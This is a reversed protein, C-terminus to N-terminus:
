RDTIVPSPAVAGQRKFFTKMCLVMYTLVRFVLFIAVNMGLCFWRSRHGWGFLAMYTDYFSYGSPFPVFLEGVGVQSKFYSIYQGQMNWRIPVVNPFWQLWLPLSYTKVFLGSFVFSLFAISTISVFSALVDESAYIGIECFALSAIQNVMWSLVFFYFFMPDTDLKVIKYVISVLVMMNFCALFYVPISTVLWSSWIPYLGRSHERLFVQNNNFLFYNYQVCMLIMVVSGVALFSLISGVSTTTNCDNMFVGFIVAVLVYNIISSIILEHRHLLALTARHLLVCTKYIVLKVGDWTPMRLGLLYKTCERFYLASQLVRSKRMVYQAYIYDQDNSEISVGTHANGAELQDVSQASGQPSPPVTNAALRTMSMPNQTAEKERDSPFRTKLRQYSDGAKYVVELELPDIISGTHDPLRSGAIAVLFDAPNPFTEPSYMQPGTIFFKMSTSVRGSYIVRGASLLLLSDFLNFIEASPQYISAVVTCDQNVMERLTALLKSAGFISVGTTPEDILLLKPGHVMEEAISLLKKQGATLSKTRVDAIADLHMNVITLKVNEEVVKLAKTGLVRLKMAFTLTERVTLDRLHCDHEPVLACRDWMPKSADPAVNNYYIKGSIQGPAGTNGALIHILSSKGSGASGMIMSLKGWDFQGSVNRLVHKTGMPSKADRVSYTVDRFLVTPGRDTNEQGTQSVNTSLRTIMGTVSASDRTFIVPQFSLLDSNRTDHRPMPSMTLRETLRENTIIIDVESNRDSDISSSSARMTLDTTLERRLQNPKKIISFFTMANFVIIFTQQIGFIQDKDFGGYGLLDIIHYGDPYASFKWVILAQYIWRVPTLKSLTILFPYMLPIQFPFGSFFVLIILAASYFERIANEKRLAACCLYIFSIGMVATLVMVQSWYTFAFSDWGSGSQMGVMFYFITSFVFGFFMIFPGESIATAAAFALVGCTGSAQEYRFMQVKKCSVHVTVVGMAFVFLTSFMLCAQTNTSDAYPVTLLSTAYEGIHCNGFQLYGLAMSVVIAAQVQKLLNETDKIKAHLARQIIIYTRYMKNSVLGHGRRYGCYSLNKESFATDKKSLSTAAQNADSKIRPQTFYKSTEFREQMFSPIEPTRQTNPREIGSSIDLLFQVIEEKKELVYGVTRDCFYPVISKRSAAFISIGGSLLIISDLLKFEQLVPKDMSCIVIHGRTALKGLCQFIQISLTPDLSLAPDDVVIVPPLHVIEIAIGLRRFDCGLPGRIVPNDAIKRDKCITLDMIDLIDVVRQEVFDDFGSSEGTYNKISLKAAYRIMEVYTLGPIYLSKGPVFGVNGYFDDEIVLGNGSLSIDGNVIGSKKRGTILDVFIRREDANGLFGYVRGGDASFNVNYLKARFDKIKHHRLSPFFYGLNWYPKVTERIRAILDRTVKTSTFSVNCVNLTHHKDGIRVSSHYTSEKSSELSQVEIKVTSDSGKADGNRAENVDVVTTASELESM